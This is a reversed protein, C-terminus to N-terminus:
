FYNGRRLKIEYFKFKSSNGGVALPFKKRIKLPYKEYLENNEGQELFFSGL